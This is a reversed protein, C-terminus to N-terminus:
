LDCVPIIWDRVLDTVGLPAGWYPGYNTNM